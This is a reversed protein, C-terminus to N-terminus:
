IKGEQQLKHILNGTVHPFPIIAYYCIRHEKPQIFGWKYNSPPAMYGVTDDKFRVIVSEKGVTYKPIYGLNRKWTCQEKM